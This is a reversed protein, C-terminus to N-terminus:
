EVVLKGLERIETKSKAKTFGNLYAIKKMTRKSETKASKREASSMDHSVFDYWQRQVRLGAILSAQIDVADDYTLGFKRM